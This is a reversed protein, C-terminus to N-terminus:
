GKLRWVDSRSKNWIYNKIEELFQDKKSINNLHPSTFENINTEKHLNSM